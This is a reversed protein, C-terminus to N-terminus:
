NPQAGESVLLPWNADPQHAEKFLKEMQIVLAPYKAAVNTQEAPDTALNYLEIPSNPLVSVQLKVAKWNGL